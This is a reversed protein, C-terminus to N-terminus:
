RGHELGGRLDNTCRWTLRLQVLAAVVLLGAVVAWTPALPLAINATSYGAHWDDMARETVKWAILVLLGSLLVSGVFDLVGTTRPGIAQGLFRIAIMHGSELAAPLCCALAVPYTMSGIDAVWSQPQRALWRLAVDFAVLLVNCLLIAVATMALLHGLRSGTRAESSTTTTM